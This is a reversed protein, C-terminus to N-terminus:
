VINGYRHVIETMSQERLYSLLEIRGNALVEDRVIPLNGIKHPSMESIDYGGMFRISGGKLKALRLALAAASERVLECGVISKFEKGWRLDNSLSVKLKVGLLRCAVAIKALALVTAGEVEGTANIRMLHWERPRYRFHNTEGHLQSPDHEKSFYSNWWHSYSEAAVRFHQKDSESELLRGLADVFGSVTSPIRGDTEPLGTQTWDCLSAVYNPGGAKSGPGTVSNKWGGFPQRQVIAGTTTRNIYANGVEVKDRWLQIEKPDLSHLGGTLGFESSNQLKIAEALSDVPMIGLVPGFCETRHYWSGPKVGLRIGPSWLCPNNEMMCPKLLWEEGAELTTLGKELEASPKRIVPTVKSTADWASGVHLSSAADILQNRFKESEYVERQVFALSTASCKQGSHGFAGRVLDGVALDLDAAATIIMANKGSTEAYLRLDPRWSQFMQATEYGGTLIVVDVRPDTVLTKGLDHDKLTIFQLVEKPVGAEWLQSALKWATLVTESAPKLIVSNGAMLAALVGGAPIAYPFNWPPTVVVVGAAKMAVGDFWANDDLSKSYYNAFDIAESIEVDSETVAKGADLMMTGITEARQRSFVAAVNRLIVARGKTGLAEWGKQADAATQLAIELEPEGARSFEYAIVNPRSPDAAQRVHETQIENGGVQIPLREVTNDKWDSVIGAIWDRNEPLSFDTNPVNQFTEDAHRPQPKESVRNQKRNPSSSLKSDHALGCAKLFADKQEDWEPSGEKLAFLAGLFSGPQTNEDFRRVLYAVASEFEADYCVPTYIVLEGAREKIELAQANAMGELMEFETHDQVGRRERMLLAYAIDFLNHSAIGLRVVHANEPRCGFELMRKYNADSELKSHYPAQAWEEISAEVQEMALNAGKVIRVKIGTGTRGHRRKAWETLSKMVSFSDPLYAQLVIGAPLKDFEPEDLVSQFVDVTMHLDRYEEMDLNVFKPRGSAGGKIAARYIQRLREKIEILTKEYGTLSIQSVVSSLKVSVYDIGPEALRQLYMQLRRDAEKDGLVAEGLQNFNIRIDESQRSSIYDPFKDPEASIIVHASDTRVRDKVLPMVIGPAIQAVNNGFWLITRDLWTLYKPLGYERLLNRLRGASRRPKQMRLVQDAMAITFKKGAPDAMMRAMKASNERERSTEHERSARLLDSAARIAKEPLDSIDAPTNRASFSSSSFIDTSM